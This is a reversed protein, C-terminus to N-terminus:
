LLYASPFPPLVTHPTSDAQNNLLLNSVCFNTLTWLNAQSIQPLILCLTNPEISAAQSWSQSRWTHATHAVKSYNRWRCFPSPLVISILSGTCLTLWFNRVLPFLTQCTTDTTYTDGNDNVHSCHFFLFYFTFMISTFNYINIQTFSLVYKWTALMNFACDLTNRPIVSM